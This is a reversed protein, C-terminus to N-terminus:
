GDDQVLTDHEPYFGLHRLPSIHCEGTEFEGNSYAERTTDKIEHMDNALRRASVGKGGM